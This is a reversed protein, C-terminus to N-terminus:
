NGVAIMCFDRNKKKGSDNGTKILVRSQDLAGIVANDRTDGGTDDFSGFGPYVQTATVSPMGSFQPDFIIEYVGEEIKTASTRIGSSSKVNGDRDVSAWKTVM